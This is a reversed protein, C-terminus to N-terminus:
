RLDDVPLFRDLNFFVDANLKQLLGINEESMDKVKTQYDKFYTIFVKIDELRSKDIIPILFYPNHTTLFYQNNNQDLAISEALIKTYQPFAHSEPEEFTIISDKNSLIAILHFIHRRFTDSVNSYPYTILIGESEKILELKEEGKRLGIRLEPPKYIESVISRLKKHTTLVSFLNDGSPPRLFDSELRPFETKDSYKYSKFQSLVEGGPPRMNYIKMSQNDNMLDAVPKEEYHIPGRYRGESYSLILRLQEATIEVSDELEEDYFLNSINEYRVFNQLYGLHSCWSLFGLAEIINSKGVNPEGIFINIRSCDFQLNKVSKFNKITLNSIM